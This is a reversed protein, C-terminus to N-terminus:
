HHNLRTAQAAAGEHGEAVAVGLVHQEAAVAVPIAVAVAVPLASLLHAIGLAYHPALYPTGLARHAGHARADHRPEPQRPSAAEGEAPRREVRDRQAHLPSRARLVHDPLVRVNRRPLAPQQLPVASSFININIFNKKM